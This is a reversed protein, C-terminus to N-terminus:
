CDVIVVMSVQTHSLFLHFVDQGVVMNSGYGGAGSWMRPWSVQFDRGGAQFHAGVRRSSMLRRKAM